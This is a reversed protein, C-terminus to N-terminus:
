QKQYHQALWIKNKNMDVLTDLHQIQLMNDPNTAKELILTPLEIHLGQVTSFVYYPYECTFKNEFRQKQLFQLVNRIMRSLRKEYTEDPYVSLLDRDENTLDNQLLGTLDYIGANQLEQQLINM